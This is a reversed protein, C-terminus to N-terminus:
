PNHPACGEAASLQFLEGSETFFPNGAEHQGPAAAGHVQRAEVGGNQKPGAAGDVRKGNQESAAAGDAQKGHQGPAAAGHVQRAEVGGNQKPEATGYM